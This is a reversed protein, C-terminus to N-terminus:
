VVYQTREAPVLRRKKDPYHGASRCAVKVEGGLRNISFHRSPDHVWVRGNEDVMYIRYVHEAVGNVVDMLNIPIAIAIQCDDGLGDVITYVVDQLHDRGAQEPRHICYVAVRLGVTDEAFVHVRVHKRGTKICRNFMVIDYGELCLDLAVSLKMTELTIHKGADKFRGDASNVRQRSRAKVKEGCEKTIGESL